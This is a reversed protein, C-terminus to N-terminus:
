QAITNTFKDYLWILNAYASPYEKADLWTNLYYHVTSHNRHLVKGILVQTYGADYLCVAIVVRAYFNDLTRRGDIKRGLIGEMTEIYYEGLTLGANAHIEEEILEEIRAAVLARNKEPLTEIKDIIPTMDSSTKPCIMM